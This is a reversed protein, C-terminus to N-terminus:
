RYPIFWAARCCLAEPGIDRNFGEDLIIISKKEEKKLHTKKKM